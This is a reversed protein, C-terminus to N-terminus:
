LLTMNVKTSLLMILEPWQEVREVDFLWGYMVCLVVDDCAGGGSGGQVEEEVGRQLM